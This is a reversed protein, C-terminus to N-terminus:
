SIVAFKLMCYCLMGDHPWSCSIGPMARPDTNAGHVSLTNINEVTVLGIVCLLTVRYFHRSTGYFGWPTVASENKVTVCIFLGLRSHNIVYIFYSIIIDEIEAYYEISINAVNQKM